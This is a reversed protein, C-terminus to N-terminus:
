QTRGPCVYCVVLLVLCGAAVMCADRCSLACRVAARGERWCRVGASQMRASAAGVRGPPPALRAALGGGVLSTRVLQPAAKSVEERGLPAARSMKLPKGADEDAGPYLEGSGAPARGPPLPLFADMLGLSTRGADGIEPGSLGEPPPELFASKALTTACSVDSPPPLPPPLLLLLPPPPPPLPPLPETGALVAAAYPRANAVTQPTATATCFLAKAALCLHFPQATTEHTTHSCAAAAPAPALMCFQAVKQSLPGQRCGSPRQLVKQLECPLLM